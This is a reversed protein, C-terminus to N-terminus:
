RKPIQFCSSVYVMKKEQLQRAENRSECPASDLLVLKKAKIDAVLLYWHKKEDNMPIFMKSLFDIKGMYDDKYANMSATPPKMWALCYRDQHLEQRPMLSKIRCREGFAGLKSTVLIAYEDKLDEEYKLGFIFAAVAAEIEDLVMDSPPRSSIEIIEKSTKKSMCSRTRKGLQSAPNAILRRSRRLVTRRSKEASDNKETKSGRKHSPTKAM